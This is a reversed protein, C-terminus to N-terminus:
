SKNEPPLCNEAVWRAYEPLAHSATAAVWQPVKYPHNALLVARLRPEAGATFKFTIRYETEECLKGEWNYLSKVPTSIQACAAASAALVARAIKLATVEDPATTWGICITQEASTEM